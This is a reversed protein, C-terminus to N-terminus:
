ITWSNHILIWSWFFFNYFFCFSKRKGFNQYFKYPQCTIQVTPRTVPFLRKNKNPRTSFWKSERLCIEKKIKQINVYRTACKVFIYKSERLDAPSFRQSFPNEKFVTRGLILYRQFTYLFASDHLTPWKPLVKQGWTWSIAIDCLTSWKSMGVSSRVLGM